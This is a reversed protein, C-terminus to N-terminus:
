LQNVQLIEAPDKRAAQWSPFFAGFLCAVIAAAAIVLLITLNVRNPIDGIAYISRDWLEFGYKKYLWHELNNINALFLWGSLLGIVASLSGIFFAFVSFLEIVAM